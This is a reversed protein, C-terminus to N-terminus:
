DDYIPAAGRPRTRYRRHTWLFQEPYRRVMAEVAATFRATNEEIDAQADRSRQVPVEHEIVIKHHVLDPQRVMFAPMVAAGSIAVVRALGSSTAAPEGFFPVWVAESRKANQDFPAGVLRGSRLLKLVARAASHKRIVECGARERVFTLLADAPLFRQTHHVLTIPRGIVSKAAALLEFNGFHATLVVLGRDANRQLIDNLYDLHECSVRRLQRRYFFGGLRIFEASGRGLNVYSARLIRRRAGESKEPFAIKLNRMGIKVHRRDLLYGLSGGAEGLRRLVFDPLLSLLHLVAVMAYFLAREVASMEPASAAQAVSDPSAGNAPSTARLSGRAAAPSRAGTPEINGPETSPM